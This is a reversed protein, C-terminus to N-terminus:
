GSTLMSMKVETLVEFRMCHLPRNGHLLCGVFQKQSRNRPPFV